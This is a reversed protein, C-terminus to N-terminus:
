LLRCVGMIGPCECLRLIGARNSHEEIIEQSQMPTLPHSPLSPLPTPSLSTLPSPTPAQTGVPAVECCEDIITECPKVPEYKETIMPEIKILLATMKQIWDAHKGEGGHGGAGALDTYVLPALILALPGPPPWVTRHMMIPVIPKKLLDALLIEKMCYDSIIFKPSFCCLVVKCTSIGQYIRHYLTDGGGMQGIDMWCRVGMQELFQRITIVEEQMDWQYSIFVQPADASKEEEKIVAIVDQRNLEELCSLVMELSLPTNQSSGFWDCLLLISPNLSTEFEEVKNNKYGLLSGLARWDQGDCGSDLLKAVSRLWPPQSSSPNVVPKRPSFLTKACMDEFPGLSVLDTPSGWEKEAPFYRRIFATDVKFYECWVTATSLCENLGLFHICNQDRCNKRKHSSCAKSALCPCKVCSISTLHPFWQVSLTHLCNEIVTRVEACVQPSPYENFHTYFGEEGGRSVIQKMVVVKMRSYRLPQMELYVQHSNSLSIRIARHWIEPEQLWLKSSKSWKVLCCTLLHFLSDPLFPVFNVYYVLDSHGVEPELKTEGETLLSPILYSEDDESDECLILHEKESRMDGRVVLMSLGELIGIMNDATWNVESCVLNLIGKTLALDKRGKCLLPQPYNILVMKNFFMNATLKSLLDIFSTPSFIITNKLIDSGAHNQGWYAVIGLSNYFELIARLEQDTYVEVERALERIVDINAVTVDKERVRTIIQEFRLWKIPIEQGVNPMKLLINFITKRLERLVNSGSDQSDVCFMTKYLSSQFPKGQISRRIREFKLEAMSIQMDRETHLSSCNTGVIVIDTVPKTDSISSRANNRNSLYVLNLWVLIFDLNTLETEVYEIDENSSKWIPVVAPSDLEQRLDFVVVNLARGGLFLQHGTYLDPHGGFDWIDVQINPLIAESRNISDNPSIQMLFDEVLSAIPEPVEANRNRETPTVKNKSRGSKSKEKSRNSNKLNSRIFSTLSRAAVNAKEKDVKSYIRDSSNSAEHIKAIENAVTHALSHDYDAKLGSLSVSRPALKEAPALDKEGQNSWEGMMNAWCKTISIGETLTTDLPNDQSMLANVLATKGVRDQGM